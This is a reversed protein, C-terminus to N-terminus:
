HPKVDIYQLVSYLFPHVKHGSVWPQLVVIRNTYALLVWATDAELQRTMELFLRQREPGDALAQAREYM